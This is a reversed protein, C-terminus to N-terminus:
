LHTGLSDAIFREREIHGYLRWAAGDSWVYLEHTSPPSPRGELKKLSNSKLLPRVNDLHASLHDLAENALIRRDVPLVEIERRVKSTLVLKTSLPELAAEGLLKRRVRQWVLDGWVSTTAEGDVTLFLSDSVSRVDDAAIRYGLAAKRFVTLHQRVEDADALRVPLRPIEMLESAREFLFVCRDAHLMGLAQLYANLSKFGGTLNFITAWGQERHTPIWAEIQSTLDSLAARFSAADDTRLGHANLFQVHQAKKELSDKVLEASARGVETDTHVLLHQVQDSPWRELVADIGNLEASLRRRTDADANRLRNQRELVHNKLRQGDASDLVKKNAIDTLWRRTEAGAENTLLSTGCTSLLLLPRM